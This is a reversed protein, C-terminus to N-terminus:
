LSRTRARSGLSSRRTRRRPISSPSGVVSDADLVNLTETENAGLNADPDLAVTITGGAINVNGNEVVVSDFQGTETGAAEIRIEGGQAITM